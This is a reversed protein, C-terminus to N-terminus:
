SLSPSPMARCHLTPEPRSVMLSILSEWECTLTKTLFDIAMESAKPYLSRFTRKKRFRDHSHAGRAISRGRAYPLSRIYEKSRKSTITYFEDM